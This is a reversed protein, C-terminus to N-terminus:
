VTPVILKLVDHERWSDAKEESWMRAIHGPVEHRRVCPPKPCRVIALGNPEFLAKVRCGCRCKWLIVAPM